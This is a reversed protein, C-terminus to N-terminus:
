NASALRGATQPPEQDAGAHTNRARCAAHGTQPRLGLCQGRARGATCRTPATTAPLRSGSATGGRGVTRDSRHRRAARRASRGHFVDEPREPWTRGSRCHIRDSTRGLPEQGAPPAPAGFGGRTRNHGIAPGGAALLDLMVPTVDEVRLSSFSVALGESRCFECIRDIEPHSGVAAAILGLRQTLHRGREIMERVAAFPRVRHPVCHGMFCFRCRYPCGRAIEVLCCDALESDPTVITAFADTSNLTQVVHPEIPPPRLTDPTQGAPELGFRGLAGATVEVGEITAVAEVFRARNGAANTWAEIIREMRLEGDGVVLIDALDYIPLRNVSLCIGGALVIPEAEPDREAAVVSIHNDLLFRVVNLYDLEYSISFAVLDFQDLPRQNEVSLAPRGECFFREALALPQDNIGRYVMQYGLSSMGVTYTNPYVLAIQCDAPPIIKPTGIERAVSRRWHLAM